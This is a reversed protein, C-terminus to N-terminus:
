ESTGPGTDGDITGLDVARQSPLQPPPPAHGPEAITTIETAIRYLVDDVSSVRDTAPIPVMEYGNDREVWAIIGAGELYTKVLVQAEQVMRNLDDRPRLRAAWLFFTKPFVSARWVDWHKIATLHQRRFLKLDTAAFKLEKRRNTWDAMAGRAPDTPSAPAGTVKTELCVLPDVDRDPWAVDIQHTQSFGQVRVRPALLHTTQNGLLLSLLTAFWNGKGRYVAALRKGPARTPDGMGLPPVGGSRYRDLTWMLDLWEHEVESFSRVREDQVRQKLADWKEGPHGVQRRLESEDSAM